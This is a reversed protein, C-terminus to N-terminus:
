RKALEGKLYDIVKVPTAAVDNEDALYVSLWDSYHLLYLLQALHTKGKAHIHTTNPTHQQIIEDNLEFRIRNRPHDADTHLFLVHLKDMLAEPHHWGVLENHNM